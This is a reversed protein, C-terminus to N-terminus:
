RAGWVSALEWMTARAGAPSGEGIWEIRDLPSTPYVRDTIVTEGDNAFVELVSRDFLVRISLRGEIWRLPGAQRGPYEKHAPGARSKRRDVFLEPVDARVGVVVEEGAANSLRLGAEQWEGRALEIAVDASAPLPVRSGISTARGTRLRELEAVPTQLLRIGDPVRRLRLVRPISQAGRWAVTPEENAYLWNSTWGMWIRRGDSPPVDSFSLTAYFDKGYDAWLTVGPANDNVFRTGDFRGIFYQGGSGGALAGPNIDVDLVWRVDDANGDVPLPFLDPCEWVGGTAGAPGFENAHADLPPRYMCTWRDLRESRRGYHEVFSGSQVFLVFGNTHAHETLRLRPAYRTSTLVSSRLGVRRLLLGAADGSEAVTPGTIVRPTAM